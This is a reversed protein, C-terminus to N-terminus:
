IKLRIGARFYKKNSNGLSLIRDKNNDRLYVSNSAIYAARFYFQFHDLFHYEYQLGSVILSMNISEATVGNGLDMGQQINSTFGDLETYAKLRHRDSYHFQLNTKPVGINYSWKPHIKRYYSIFPLPFPFGRNESYSIGVIIRYPKRVDPAQKKDNIFVLDGSLVIDEISLENVTLNSSVGPTIRVGLRWNKSIKTTYGINLDLLQFDELKEENFASFDNGFKLDINSYDLGLFLYTGENLKVPYNFLARFRHYEIDSDGEPLFTYDIRALDSLQAQGIIPFLFIIFLYKIKPIKM